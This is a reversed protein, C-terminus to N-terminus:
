WSGLVMRVPLRRPLTNSGLPADAALSGDERLTASGVRVGNIFLVSYRSSSQLNSAMSLNIIASPESASGSSEASIKPDKFDAAVSFVM